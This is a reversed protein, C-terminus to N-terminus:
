LGTEEGTFHLHPCANGSDGSSWDPPPSHICWVSGWIFALARVRCAAPEEQASTLRIDMEEVDCNRWSLCSSCSHRSSCARNVWLPCHSQQLVRVLPLCQVVQHAAPCPICTDAPPTSSSSPFPLLCACIGGWSSSSPWEWPACTIEPLSFLEQPPHFPPLLKLLLSGTQSRNMRM